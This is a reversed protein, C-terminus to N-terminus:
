SERKYPSDASVQYRDRVLLCDTFNAAAADVEVVVQGAAAVPEDVERVALGDLDGYTECVVARM